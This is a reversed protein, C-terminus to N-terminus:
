SWPKQLNTALLNISNATQGCLNDSYNIFIKEYMHMYMYMYMHRYITCTNETWLHVNMVHM